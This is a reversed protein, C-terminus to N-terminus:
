DRVLLRQKREDLLSRHIPDDLWQITRIHHQLYTLYEVPDVEKNIYDMITWNVVYLNAAAIMDVLCGLEDSSLPGLGPNSRLTRQYADLFLDMDDLRLSGDCDAEWCTFFYYLALAVDFCRYDLKSWDLDFLGVVQGNEFKLNGPHYDCHIVVEVCGDSLCNELRSQTRHLHDRLLSVNEQLYSDFVTGHAQSLCMVIRSDIVPLLDMIKTEVRSGLPTYGELARHFRALVQASSAIESPSCVPDIWTYLDDGPLFSFIAYFVGEPEGDEERRWVYTSGERTPYVRAVIDFHNSLLHNIISHECQLEETRVGRKYRRFFYRNNIGDKQTQIAFSTNVTGREDREFGVLDGLDYQALISKLESWHSTEM